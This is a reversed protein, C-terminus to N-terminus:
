RSDIGIITTIFLFFPLRSKIAVLGIPVIQRKEFRKELRILISFFSEIFRVLKRYYHFGSYFYEFTVLKNVTCKRGFNWFHELPRSVMRDRTTLNSVTICWNFWDTFRGVKDCERDAQHPFSRVLWPIGFTWRDEMECGRRSAGLTRWFSWNCLNLLSIRMRWVRGLLRSSSRHGMLRLRLKTRTAIIEDNAEFNMYKTGASLM